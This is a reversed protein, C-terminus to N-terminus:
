VRGYEGSLKDAELNRTGSKGRGRRVFGERFEKLDLRFVNSKKVCNVWGRMNEGERM